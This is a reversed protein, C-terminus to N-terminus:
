ARLASINAQTSIAHFCPITKSFDTTGYGLDRLESTSMMDMASQRIESKPAGKGVGGVYGLTRLNNKYVQQALARKSVTRIKTAKPQRLLANKLAVRKAKAREAKPLATLVSDLIDSLGTSSLTLTVEKM